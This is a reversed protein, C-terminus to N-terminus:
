ALRLVSQTVRISLTSGTVEQGCFTLVPIVKYTTRTSYTCGKAM